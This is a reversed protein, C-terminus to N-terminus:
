ELLGWHYLLVDYKWFSTNYYPTGANAFRDVTQRSTQQKKKPLFVRFIQFHWCTSMQAYKVKKLLHYQVNSRLQGGRVQPLKTRPISLFSHHGEPSYTKSNHSVPGWWSGALFFLSLLCAFLCAFNPCFFFFFPLDAFPLIATWSVLYNVSLCVSLRCM